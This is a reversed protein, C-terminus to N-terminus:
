RLKAFLAKILSKLAIQIGLEGSEFKGARDAQAKQNLFLDPHVLDIYPSSVQKLIEEAPHGEKCFVVMNQKYWVEVQPNAWVLPRICDHLRYNYKDFKKVWHSLWQENVHHQGGQGPIAASFLIIDGHRVLTNVLQDEAAEEIHEAVELSLVLDFKRNLVLPLTLDNVQFQNPHIVMLNRDVWDGDVGLLDRVGEQEFAKLWTGLGCGVDLISGPNIMRKIILAIVM